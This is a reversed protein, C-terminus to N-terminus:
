ILSHTHHAVTRYGHNEHLSPMLKRSLQYKSFLIIEGGGDEEEAEKDEEKKEEAQRAVGERWSERGGTCVRSTKPHQREKPNLWKETFGRSREQRQGPNFPM